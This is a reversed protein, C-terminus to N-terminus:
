VKGLLLLKKNTGPKHAAYAFDFRYLAKGTHAHVLTYGIPKIRYGQLQCAKVGGARVAGELGFSENM